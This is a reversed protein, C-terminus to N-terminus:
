GAPRSSASRRSARTPSSTARGSRSCSVAVDIAVVRPLAALLDTKHEAILM